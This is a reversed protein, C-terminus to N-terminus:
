TLLFNLSYKTGDCLSSTLFSLPNVNCNLGFDIMSLLSILIVTKTLILM